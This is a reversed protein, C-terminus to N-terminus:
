FFARLKVALDEPPNIILETQLMKQLFYDDNRYNPYLNQRNIIKFVCRLGEGSQPQRVGYLSYNFSLYGLSEYFALVKSIGTALSQIDADSLIAPDSETGHVAIVENSGLPSFATMWHWNGEQAVFRVGRKKEEEILDAHYVADNRKHYSRCAEIMRAQYSYAAPTVLIQLHPHVLSAGGPFLYNANITSFQVSQDSRYVAKLFDRGATFGNGVIEPTFESLKLFHAACLAAVAHYKGIAFLNPFLLAEGRRIRGEPVLAPPYKPTIKEIRDPCFICTKASEEVLSRVLEPDNDGFFAKAKDRLFPNYASTDGLLPDKRVEVKHTDETFDNQPNLITFCSEATEFAIKAM